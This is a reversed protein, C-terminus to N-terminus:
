FIEFSNGGCVSVRCYHITIFDVHLVDLLTFIFIYYGSFVIRASFFPTIPTCKVVDEILSILEMRVLKLWGVCLCSFYSPM